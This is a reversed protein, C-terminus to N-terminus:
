EWRENEPETKTLIMPADTELLEWAAAPAELLNSELVEMQFRDGEEFNLSVKMKNTKPEAPDPVLTVLSVSFYVSVWGSPVTIVFSRTM